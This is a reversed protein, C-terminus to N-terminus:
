AINTSVANIRIVTMRENVFIIKWGSEELIKKIKKYNFSFTHLEDGWGPIDLKRRLDELWWFTESPSEIIIKRAHLSLKKLLKEPENIHELTHVLVATDFTENLEIKEADENVFRIREDKIAELKKFYVKDIEVGLISGAKEIIRRSLHGHAPGIELVREGPELNELVFSITEERYKLASESDVRNLIYWAVEMFVFCLFVLARLFFRPAVRSLRYLTAVIFKRM